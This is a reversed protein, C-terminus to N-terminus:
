VLPGYLTCSTCSTQVLQLMYLIPQLLQLKYLMKGDCVVLTYLTVSCNPNFAQTLNFIKNFIHRIKHM